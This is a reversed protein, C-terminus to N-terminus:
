LILVISQVRREMEELQIDKNIRDIDEYQDLNTYHIDIASLDSLTITTGDDPVGLRSQLLQQLLPLTLIKEEDDESDDSDDLM